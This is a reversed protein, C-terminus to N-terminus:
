VHHFHIKIPISNTPIRHSKDRDPEPFKGEIVTINGSQGTTKQIYIM